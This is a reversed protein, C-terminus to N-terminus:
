SVAPVAAGGVARARAEQVVAGTVLARLEAQMEAGEITWDKALHRLLSGLGDYTGGSGPDAIVSRLQDLLGSSPPGFATKIAEDNTAVADLLASRFKAMGASFAPASAATPMKAFERTISSRLANNQQLLAAALRGANPRM